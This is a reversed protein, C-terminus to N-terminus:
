NKQKESLKKAKLNKFTEFSCSLFGISALFRFAGYIVAPFIEVTTPIVKCEIGKPRDDSMLLKIFLHPDPFSFRKFFPM